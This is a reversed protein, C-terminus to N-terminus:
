FLRRPLFIVINALLSIPKLPESVFSFSLIFTQVDKLTKKKM